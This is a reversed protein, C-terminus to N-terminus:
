PAVKLRDGQCRCGLLLVVGDAENDLPDSTWGLQNLAQEIGSLNCNRVQSLHLDIGIKVVSSLPLVQWGQVSRMSPWTLLPCPTSGHQRPERRCSMEGAAGCGVAVRVEVRVEVADRLGVLLQDAEWVAVPMALWLTVALAEGLVEGMSVGLAQNLRVSVPRPQAYAAM